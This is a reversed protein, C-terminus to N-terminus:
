PSSARASSSSAAIGVVRTQEVSLCPSLFLSISLSIAPAATRKLRFVFNLALVFAFHLYSFLFLSRSLSLSFFSSAASIRRTSSNILRRRSRRCLEIFVISDCYLSHPLSLSPPLPLYLWVNAHLHRSLGLLSAVRLVVSVFPWVSRPLGRRVSIVGTLITIIIIITLLTHPLWASARPCTALAAARLM